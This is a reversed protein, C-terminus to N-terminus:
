TGLITDYRSQSFRAPSRSPLPTRLYPTPNIPHTNMQNSAAQVKIEKCAVVRPSNTIREPVLDDTVEQFLMVQVDDASRMLRDLVPVLELCGTSKYGYERRRVVAALEVIGTPHHANVCTQAAGEFDQAGHVGFLSVLFRDLGIARLCEHPGASFNVLGLVFLYQPLYGWSSTNREHVQLYCGDRRDALAWLSSSRSARFRRAVAFLDGFRRYLLAQGVMVAVCGWFDVLQGDGCILKFGRDTPIFQEQTQEPM